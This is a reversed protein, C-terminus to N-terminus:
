AIAIVLCLGIAVAFVVIAFLTWEHRVPVSIEGSVPALPDRELHVPEMHPNTARQMLERMLADRQHYQTANPDGFPHQTQSVVPATAKM